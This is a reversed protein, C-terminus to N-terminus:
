RNVGALISGMPTQPADHPPADPLQAPKPKTVPKGANDVGDQGISWLVYEVGKRSYGYTSQAAFPDRPVEPLYNPTLAELDPPYEGHGAHWAQLALVIQVRDYRAKTQAPFRLYVLPSAVKVMLDAPAFLPVHSMHVEPVAAHPSYPRSLLDQLQGIHQHYRSRFRYRFILNEPGEFEELVSATTIYEEQRLGGAYDTGMESILSLARLASHAQQATLHPTIEELGALGEKASAYGSLAGILNTGTTVKRGLRVADLYSNAAADWDGEAASVDGEIVLLRALMRYRILEPFEAELEVRLPFCFEQALAPRLLQRAEQNDRLIRKKESLTYEALKGRLSEPDNLGAIAQQLTDYANPSPMSAWPEPVSPTSTFFKWKTVGAAALVVVLSVLALLVVRGIWVRSRTTKGSKNNM